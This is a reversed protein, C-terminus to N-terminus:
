RECEGHTGDRKKVMALARRKDARKCMRESCTDNGVPEQIARAHKAVAHGNSPAPALIHKFRASKATGWRTNGEGEAEIL